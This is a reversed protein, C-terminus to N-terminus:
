NVSKLTHAINYEGTHRRHDIPNHPERWSQTSVQRKGFQISEMTIRVMQTKIEASFEIICGVPFQKIQRLVEIFSLKNFM